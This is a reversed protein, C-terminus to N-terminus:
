GCRYVQTHTHTTRSGSDEKHARDEQGGSSATSTRHGTYTRATSEWLTVSFRYGCASGLLCRGGGASRHNVVYSSCTRLPAWTNREDPNPNFQTM